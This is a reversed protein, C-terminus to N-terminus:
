DIVVKTLFDFLSGAESSEFSQHVAKAGNACNKELLRPQLPAPTHWPEVVPPHSCLSWSAAHVAQAGYPCQLPFKVAPGVQSVGQLDARPVATHALALILSLSGMAPRVWRM